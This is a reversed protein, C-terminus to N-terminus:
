MYLGVYEYEWYREGEESDDYPSGWDDAEERDWTRSEETDDSNYLVYICNGAPRDSLWDFEDLVQLKKVKEKEINTFCLLTLERDEDVDETDFEYLKDQYAIFGRYDGEYEGVYITFFDIVKDGDKLINKSYNYTM